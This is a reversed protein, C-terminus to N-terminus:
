KKKFLKSLQYVIYSIILFKILSITFKGIGFNIGSIKFTYKELNKIDPNNDNDADRNIIPLVLNNIFAESIDNIKNSLITAIAVSLINNDNLFELFDSINLINSINM